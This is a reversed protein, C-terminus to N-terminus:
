GNSRLAAARVACARAYDKKHVYVVYEQSGTRSRLRQNAHGGPIRVTCPIGAAGLASQIRFLQEQQFTVMLERRNFITIM